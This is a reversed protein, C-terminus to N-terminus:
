VINCCVSLLMHHRLIFDLMIIILRFIFYFAYIFSLSYVSFSMGLNLCRIEFHCFM